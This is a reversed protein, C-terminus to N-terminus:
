TEFLRPFSHQHFEMPLDECGFNSNFVLITNMLEQTEVLNGAELEDIKALVLSQGQAVTVKHRTALVNLWSHQRLDM